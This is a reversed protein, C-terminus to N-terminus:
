EADTIVEKEAIGAIIWEQLSDLALITQMYEAEVDCVNIGYSNFRLVLPAYMADAISFQGFLFPGKSSSLCEQWIQCIRDIEGQLESTISKFEIKKRCNMPLANRITMFSSHMEACVARALAKEKPDTPWCKKDPHLDAIYECIALSDWVTLDQDILVPVKGSSSKELLQKKSTQAYLPIRSETFEIGFQKLVLWPRLSWSSYNKNGIILNLM